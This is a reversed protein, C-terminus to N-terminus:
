PSQRPDRCAALLLVKLDPIAPEVLSTGNIWLQGDKLGVIIYRYPGNFDELKIAASITGQWALIAARDYDDTEAVEVLSGVGKLLIQNIQSLLSVVGLKMILDPAPSAASASAPNARQKAADEERLQALQDLWPDTVVQPEVQDQTVPEPELIATKGTMYYYDIQQALNGVTDSYFTVEAGYGAHYDTYTNSRRCVLLWRNTPARFLGKEKYEHKQLTTEILTQDQATWDGEFKRLPIPESPVRIIVPYFTM